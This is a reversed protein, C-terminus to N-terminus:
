DTWSTLRGNTFNLIMPGGGPSYGRSPNYTWLEETSDKSVTAVVQDPKGWSALVENSTMGIAINGEKIAKAFDNSLEPHETLYDQRRQEPTACGSWCIFGVLLIVILFKNM